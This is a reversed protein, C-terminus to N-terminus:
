GSCSSKKGGSELSWFHMNPIKHSGTVRVVPRKREDIWFVRRALSDCFFFSALEKKIQCSTEQSIEPMRGSRTRDKLGGMGERDYRKLWDSARHNSIHM